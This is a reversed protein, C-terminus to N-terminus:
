YTPYGHTKHIGSPTSKGNDTLVGSPKSSSVDLSLGYFLKEAAGPTTKFMHIKRAIELRGKTKIYEEEWKEREEQVDALERKTANVERQTAELAKSRGRIWALKYRVNSLQRKVFPLKEKMFRVDAGLEEWMELSITDSHISKHLERRRFDKVEIELEMESTRNSLFQEEQELSDEKNRLQAVESSLKVCECEAQTLKYTVSHFRERAERMLRMANEKKKELDFVDNRLFTCYDEDTKVWSTMAYSTNRINACCEPFILLLPITSCHHQQGVQIVNSSMSQVKVGDTRFQRSLKLVNELNKTITEKWCLIQEHYHEVTDVTVDSEAKHFSVCYKDLLSFIKWCHELIGAFRGPVFDKVKNTVDKLVTIHIIHEKFKDKNEAMKKFIEEVRKVSGIEAAGITIMLSKLAPAYKTLQASLSRHIGYYKRELHVLEKGVTELERSLVTRIEHLHRPPHTELHTLEEQSLRSHRPQNLHLCFVTNNGLTPM